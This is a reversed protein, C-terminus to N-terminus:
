FWILDTWCRSGSLWSSTTCTTLMQPNLHLLPLLKHFFILLLTDTTYIMLRKWSFPYSQRQLWLYPFVISTSPSLLFLIGVWYARKNKNVWSFMLHWCHFPLAKIPCSIITFFDCLIGGKDATESKMAETVWWWGCDSFVLSFM